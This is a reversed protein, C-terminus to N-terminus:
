RNHCMQCTGKNDIRLLRSSTSAAGGPDGSATALASMSANSGHSVHCTICNASGLTTGNSVHRYNFIADANNTAGATSLYRTHCTICWASVNAIYGATNADDSKWYNLTTYTKVTAVPEVINTAVALAGSEVPLPKLVRYNGNGHPDHCSGCNLSVGVGANAVLNNAGNGWAIQSTGDVSHASTVAVGAALVPVSGTNNSYSAKQGSPLLSNIRATVFGGGRLAGNPTVRDTAAYGTGGQVDTSAGTGTTGHCSYCLAPQAQKLLNAAKATHTRHCSACGDAVIGAGATHPGNDASAPAAAGFSFLLTTCAGIIALRQKM